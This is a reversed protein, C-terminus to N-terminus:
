GDEDILRVLQAQRNIDLKHFIASLHTRVTNQSIGLRAAAAARGDGRAVEIAVGAESKTLGNQEILRAAIAEEDRVGRQGSGALVIAAAAGPALTGRVSGQPLPLLELRRSGSGLAVDLKAPAADPRDCAAALAAKLKGHHRLDAAGVRGETLRLVHGAELEAHAVRNAHVLQLRDSVFITPVALADLAAEFASARLTALELLRSFAIARQLHPLLLRATAVDDKGFPGAKRKRGFGLAGVVADDRALVLGMSDAFGAGTMEDVYSNTGKPIPSITRSWVFPESLSLAKFRDVGGWADLIQGGWQAISKTWAEPVNELFNLVFANRRLDILSLAANEAGILVRIRGLTEPWNGPDIARDYISGILESLQAATPKIL